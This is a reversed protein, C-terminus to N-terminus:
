YEGADVLQSVLYTSSQWKKTVEDYILLSGNKVGYTETDVDEINSISTRGIAESVKTILEDLDISTLPLAVTVVNNVCQLAKQCNRLM